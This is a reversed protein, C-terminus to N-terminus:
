ICEYHWQPYKELSHDYKIKYKVFIGHEKLNQIVNEM